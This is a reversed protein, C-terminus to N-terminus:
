GKFKQWLKWGIGPIGFLYWPISISSSSSEWISPQWAPILFDFFGATYCLYLVIGIGAIVLLIKTGKKM